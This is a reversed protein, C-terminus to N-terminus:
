YGRYIRRVVYVIVMLSSIATGLEAGHQFNELPDDSKACGAFVPSTAVNDFYSVVSGNNLVEFKKQHWIGSVQEYLFFHTSTPTVLVSPPIDSYHNDIAEQLNAFCVNSSLYGAMSKALKVNLGSCWM